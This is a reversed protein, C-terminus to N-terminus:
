LYSHIRKRRSDSPYHGRCLRSHQTMEPTSTLLWKLFLRRVPQAPIKKQLIKKLRIKIKLSFFESLPSFKEYCGSEMLPDGATRVPGLISIAPLVSSRACRSDSRPLVFNSYM